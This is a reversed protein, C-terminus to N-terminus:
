VVDAMVTLSAQVTTDAVNASDLEATQKLSVSISQKNDVSDGKAVKSGDVYAELIQGPQVANDYTANMSHVTWNASALAGIVPEAGSTATNKHAELVVNSTQFTGDAEAVIEGTLELTSSDEGTIILSDSAISGPVLGTWVVTASASDAANANAAMGMLLVSALASKKFNSM